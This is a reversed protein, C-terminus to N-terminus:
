YQGGVTRESRLLVALRGSGLAAALEIADGDAVRLLVTRDRWGAADDDARPTPDPMVVAAEAVTRPTEQQYEDPIWLVDLVTGATLYEAIQSEPFPVPMVTTGAPANGPDALRGATIMEGPELRDATTRGVVAARDLAAGALPSDAAVRALVVDSATLLSGAPLAAGAVAVAVGSQGRSREALDETLAAGGLLLLGAIASRRV